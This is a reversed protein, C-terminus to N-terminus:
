RESPRIEYPPKARPDSRVNVLVRELDPVTALFTELAAAHEARTVCGEIWAFKRKVAIWLSADKFAASTDFRDQISKAIAKDYLYANPEACTGALWCSAGREIRSHSEAIKETETLLPGLPTPCPMAGARVQFFPDDFWNRLSNDNAAFANTAALTSYFLIPILRHM